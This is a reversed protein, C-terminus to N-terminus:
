KGRTKVSFSVVKAPQFDSLEPSSCSRRSYKLLKEWKLEKKIKRNEKKSGEESCKKRCNCIDSRVWCKIGVLCGFFRGFGRSTWFFILERQQRLFHFYIKHKERDLKWLQAARTEWKSYIYLRQDLVWSNKTIQM